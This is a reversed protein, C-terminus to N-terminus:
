HETRYLLFARAAAQATIPSGHPGTDPLKRRKQKGTGMGTDM